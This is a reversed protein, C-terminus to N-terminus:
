CSFIGPLLIRNSFGSVTCGNKFLLEWFGGPMGIGPPKCYSM